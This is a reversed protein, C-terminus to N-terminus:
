IPEPVAGIVLAAIWLMAAVQVLYFSFRVAVTLDRVTFLVHVGTQAVRAAMVTVALVDVLPSVAGALNAVLVLAGFIPLNEVCNAHARMMRRYADRGHPVDAPFSAFGAQGRFILAMREVGIGAVLVLLTWLAFGLLMWLSLSM